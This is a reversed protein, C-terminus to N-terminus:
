CIKSCVIKLWIFDAKSINASNYPIGQLHFKTCQIKKLHHLIDYVYCCLIEAMLLYWLYNDRIIAFFTMLSDLGLSFRLNQEYRDPVIEVRVFQICNSTWNPLIKRLRLAESHICIPKQCPLFNKKPVNGVPHTLVKAFNYIGVVRFNPYWCELEQCQIFTSNQM